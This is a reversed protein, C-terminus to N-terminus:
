KGANEDYNRIAEAIAVRCFASVRFNNDRCFKYIDEKEKESVKFNIGERRKDVNKIDDYM